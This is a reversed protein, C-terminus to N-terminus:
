RCEKQLYAMEAPPMPEGLQARILLAVCRESAAGGAAKAVREAPRAAKASATAGADPAPAQPQARDSREARAAVASAAAAAKAKALAAREAAASAKAAAPSVAPPPTAKAAVPAPVTAPAPSEKRPTAAPAPAPAPVAAAAPEPEKRAPLPAATVTGSKKRASDPAAAPLDKPLSPVPATVRASDGSPPEYKKRVRALEEELKKQEREREELKAQLLALEDRKAADPGVASRSPNFSFNATLSTNVWPVQRQNTDRVVKVRVNKFMQEVEIGETLMEKVLHRTYVSNTGPPGDEATSRPAAAYAMLTGRAAMEALGGTGRIARTKPGFPNDRCADLIVIRVQTRARELRSVFLEDVDVGEDRVEDEDRLNVDVPLLYNRGEIQVGHGAYYFVSAGEENQLRKAFDRLVKRFEKIPLNVHENVEFGLRRLTTAVVRADNEPNNLALAPYRANGVVLAIRKEAALAVDAGLVLALVFAFAALSSLLVRSRRRRAPFLDSPVSRNM